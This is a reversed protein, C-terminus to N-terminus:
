KGRKKANNKPKYEQAGNGLPRHCKTVCDEWVDIREGSEYPQLNKKLQLGHYVALPFISMFSVTINDVKITTSGSSIIDGVNYKKNAMVYERNLANIKDRCKKEIGAKRRHYEEKNM